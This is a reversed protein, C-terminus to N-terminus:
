EGRWSRLRRGNRTYGVRADAASGELQVTSVFRDGGSGHVACRSQDDQDKGRPQNELRAYLLGKSSDGWMGRDCVDNPDEADVGPGQLQPDEEERALPRIWYPGGHQSVFCSHYDQEMGGMPGVSLTKSVKMGLQTNTAAYLVGVFTASSVFMWTAQLSVEKPTSTATVFAELVGNVGLLPIYWELYRRLIFPASTQLYKMPLLLVISPPFLPPVFAPFIFLLHAAIHAIFTMLEGSHPNTEPPHSSFHLLVTEEIPQFGLRAILSGTKTLVVRVVTTFAGYNMAIAYGGQDQLPCLRTM